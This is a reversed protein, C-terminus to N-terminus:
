LGLALSMMHKQNQLKQKQGGGMIIPWLIKKFNQGWAIAM